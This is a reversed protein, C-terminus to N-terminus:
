GPAGITDGSGEENENHNLDCTKSERYYHFSCVNMAALELIELM